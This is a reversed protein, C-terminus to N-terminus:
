QQTSLPNSLDLALLGITYTNPTTYPLASLPPCISYRPLKVLRSLLNLAMYTIYASLDSIACKACILASSFVENTTKRPWSSGLSINCIDIYFM